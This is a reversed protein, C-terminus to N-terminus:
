KKRQENIGGTKLGEIVKKTKDIKQDINHEQNLLQKKQAELEILKKYKLLEDREDDIEKIGPNNKEKIFTICDLIRKIGIPGLGRVKLKLLDEETKTLLEEITKIGARMLTNKLQPSLDLDLISTLNPIESNNNVNSSENTKSVDLAINNSEKVINIREIVHTIGVIGFNSIKNLDEETKTLLEEVTQIGARRLCYFDKSSLGLERLPTNGSLKLKKLNELDVLKPTNNDFINRIKRLASAEIQSIRPISVEYIESLEDLTLCNNSNDLGFRLTIIKLERESLNLKQLDEVNKIYIKIERSEEIIIPFPTNKIYNDVDLIKSLINKNFAFANFRFLQANLGFLEFFMKRKKNFDETYLLKELDNILKKFFASKIMGVNSINLEEQIKLGTECWGNSSIGYLRRIVISDRESLHTINTKKLDYLEEILQCIRNHILINKEHETLMEFQKDCKIKTILENFVDQKTMYIEKKSM